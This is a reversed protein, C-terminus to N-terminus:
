STSAQQLKVISQSIGMLFDIAVIWSWIEGWIRILDPFDRMYDTEVFILIKPFVFSIESLTMNQAHQLIKLVNWGNKHTPSFKKEGIHLKALDVYQSFINYM